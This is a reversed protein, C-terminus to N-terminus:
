LSSWFNQSSSRVTQSSPQLDTGTVKNMGELFLVFVVIQEGGEARVNILQEQDKGFSRGSCM